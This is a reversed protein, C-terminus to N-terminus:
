WLAPRPTTKLSKSQANEDVKELELTDVAGETEVTKVGSTEASAPTSASTTKYAELQRARFVAAADSLNEDQKKLFDARSQTPGVQGRQIIDLLSSAAGNDGSVSATESGWITEDATPDAQAMAGTPLMLLSGAGFGLVLRSVWAACCNQQNKMTRTLILCDVLVFAM